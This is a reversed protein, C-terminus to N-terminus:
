TKKRGKRIRFAYSTAPVEAEVWELVNVAVFFVVDVAVHPRALRRVLAPLDVGRARGHQGPRERLDVAHLHAVAKTRWCTKHFNYM